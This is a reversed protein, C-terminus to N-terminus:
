VILPTTESPHRQGGLGFEESSQNSHAQMQQHLWMERRQLLGSADSAEDDESSSDESKGGCHFPILKGGVEQRLEKFGERMFVLSEQAAVGDFSTMREELTVVSDDEDPQLRAMAQKAYSALEAEMKDQDRPLTKALFLLQFASICWFLILQL